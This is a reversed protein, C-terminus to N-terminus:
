MQYGYFDGELVIYDGEVSGDDWSNHTVKPSNFNFTSTDNMRDVHEEGVFLCILCQISHRPINQQPTMKKLIEKCGWVFFLFSRYPTHLVEFDEWSKLADPTGGWMAQFGFIDVWLSSQGVDPLHGLLRTQIVTAIAGPLASGQIEFSANTLALPKGPQRTSTLCTKFQNIATPNPSKSKLIIKTPVQYHVGKFLLVWNKFRRKQSKM